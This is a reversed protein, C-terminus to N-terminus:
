FLNTLKKFAKYSAHNEHFLSLANLGFQLRKKNNNFSDLIVKDIEKENNPDVAWGTFNNIVADAVGGEIGAISPVGYSSAETYSIGYGELSNKEQYSPMVFLDAKKFILDKNRESIKGEFVVSNKINSNKIVQYLHDKANGIGAIHWSFEPLKDKLRILSHAVQLLGKRKEIRCLSFIILPVNNKNKDNLIKPSVSFTPNIVCLKRNEITWKSKIMSLTFNSIPIIYKCRDFAKQVKWEKEKRVLLEQALAFCIIIKRKKPIASVSKWSDCIFIDDNSSNFILKIKKIIPRVLKPSVTNFVIYNASKNIFFHDPFVRINYNLASLGDALSSMLIQMGGIKPPFTQTVINIKM